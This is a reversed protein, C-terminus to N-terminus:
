EVKFMSSISECCHRLDEIDSMLDPGDRQVYRSSKICDPMRGQEDFQRGLPIWPWGWEQIVSKRGERPCCTARLPVREDGRGTLAQTGCPLTRPGMNNRIKMLSTVSEPFDEKDRQQHSWERSGCTM